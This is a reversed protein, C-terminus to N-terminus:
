NSEHWSNTQLILQIDNLINVYNVAYIIKINSFSHTYWVKLVSVPHGWYCAVGCVIMIEEYM